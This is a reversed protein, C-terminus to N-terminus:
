CTMVPTLLLWEQPGRIERAAAAAQEAPLFSVDVLGWDRALRQSHARARASLVAAATQPAVATMACKALSKVSPM